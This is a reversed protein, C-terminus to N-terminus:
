VFYDGFTKAMTGALTSDRYDTMHKNGKEKNCRGCLVQMNDFDLALEPHFKRPKIHDVNVSRRSRPIVKCKMCKSGYAAIVRSRLAKWEPSQLFGDAGTKIAKAIENSSKGALLLARSKKRASAKLMSIYKKTM